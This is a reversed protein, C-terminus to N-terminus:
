EGKKLYFRATSALTTTELFTKIRGQREQFGEVAALARPAVAEPVSGIILFGSFWHCQRISTLRDLREM